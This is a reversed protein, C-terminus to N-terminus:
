CSKCIRASCIRRAILGWPAAAPSGDATSAPSLSLVPHQFGLTEAISDAIVKAFMARRVAELPSLM